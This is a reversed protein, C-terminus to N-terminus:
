FTVIAKIWLIKLTVVNAHNFCLMIDSYLVSSCCTSILGQDLSEFQKRLYAVFNITAIRIKKLIHQVYM